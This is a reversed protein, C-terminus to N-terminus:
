LTLIIVVPEAKILPHQKKYIQGFKNKFSVLYIIVILFDFFM